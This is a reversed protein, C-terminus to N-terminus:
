RGGNIKAKGLFALVLEHGMGPNAAAFADYCSFSTHIAKSKNGTESISSSTSEFKDKISDSISLTKMVKVSRRFFWKIKLQFLKAVEM